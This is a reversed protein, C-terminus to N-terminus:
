GTNWNFMTGKQVILSALSPMEYKNSIRDYFYHYTNVALKKATEVITMFTDKAETGKESMTHFSIDRYRAQTRAGLESTNNHLPTTPYKLVLLLSDKKLKTKQIRENLQEYDTQAAFLADFAQELAQALESTPNEKYDLLKHYYEWYQTIFNELIIKHRYIVPNLKKYHRGDHVWCLALLDTIQRFQPADDTLLISIANPLQQYAIIASAELIVRRNTSHKKPNPFLKALLTDVETRNMVASYVCSRLRILQKEPLNMQEMLAYSLESFEFTMKGGTLIDIITLRDKNRRTFYATYLANCLIHTYYNKGKVRAGTDDMQQHISSSLGAKVIATKEPQFINQDDILVRAITAESIVTGHNTLIAHIASETMKHTQHLDLIL